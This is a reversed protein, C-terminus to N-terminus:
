TFSFRKEYTRDVPSIIFRPFFFLVTGLNNKLPIDLTFLCAHPVRANTALSFLVLLLFQTQTQTQAGQTQCDLVLRVRYRAHPTVLRDHTGNQAYSLSLANM